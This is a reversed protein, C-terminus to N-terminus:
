PAVQIVGVPGTSGDCSYGYNGLNEGIAESVKLTKESAAPITTARDLQITHEISSTNKVVFTGNQKVRYVVPLPQCGTIDLFAYGSENGLKNVLDSHRQREAESANSGPFSLVAQEDATLTRSVSTTTTGTTSTAPTQTTSAPQGRKAAGSQYIAYGLVGGVVVLIGILILTGKDKM